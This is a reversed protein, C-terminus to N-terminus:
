GEETKWKKKHIAEICDFALFLTSELWERSKESIEENLDEYSYNLLREIRKYTRNDHNDATKIRIEM